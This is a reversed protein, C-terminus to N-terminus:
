WVSEGCRRRPAKSHKLTVNLIEVVAVKDGIRGARFKKRHKAMNMRRAEEMVWKDMRVFGSHTLIKEDRDTWLTVSSGEYGTYSNIYPTM